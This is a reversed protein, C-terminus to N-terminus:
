FLELEGCSEETAEVDATFDVPAHACVCLTAALKVAGNITVAYSALFGPKLSQLYPVCRASLLFPTSMGLDPFHRLLEQNMAGCCLNCIEQFAEAFPRESATGVFYDLTGPDETVHLVVVLRFDISSITLIVAQTGFAAATGPQGLPDVVCVDGARLALRSQAAKRFIREFSQRAESSIV